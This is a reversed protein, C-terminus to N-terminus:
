PGPGPGSVHVSTPEPELRRVTGVGTVDRGGAIAQDTPRGAPGRHRRVGHRGDPRSGLWWGLGLLLLGVLLAAFALEEHRPLFTFTVTSKGPELAVSQFVGDADGITLARTNTSASWGSMYLEHRVVVARGRCDAVVSTPTEASLRCQGSRVTYLPEPAPLRYIDTTDDAYSLRLHAASATAPPVQGPVTVLYVVGIEEYGRLHTLFEQLTSPGAPDVTTTGTFTGPAVNPDLSHVIYNGYRKPIPVDNINASGIDFYSGYDPAIPGLTYFRQNGLHRQLWTVPATDITAQRPASLEPTVFMALVDVVVCALLVAMKVRGRLFIAAVALVVIIGFGWLLSAAVWAHEHPATTLDHRLSSGTLFLAAAIAASGAVSAALYWRPVARRRIDDVGLAALVIVALEWSPPVYRYAAVKDMIPLLAFLKAFPQLGFARGVTLVIWLALVIRLSRLRKGYLGILALVLLSTTAYGGVNGWVAYLVGSHDSSTFGFIPGFSYPFLLTSAASHPLFANNFGAAHAGLDATPLYDAFAVLIPAALLVGVVVGAVIKKAYAIADARHLGIARIIVWALVMLGDLYAMEPFGAYLSLAVAIAILAWRQPRGAEAADRAREAGLLLLPLFAIPNVPAHEFWSFTGNLAFAIGGVAAIWRTIRLRLLLRYTAIGTVVELLVHFYLQGNTLALLLTPPFLAASQMEGALPAGIGEFPNWWPLHGHLLDLAALHGLAQATFGNNPDISFTGPLVGARAISGLGSVVNIPNSNFFGLLFLANAVLVAGVIVAVPGVEPNPSPIRAALDRVRALPHRAGTATGSLHADAPSADAPRSALDSV